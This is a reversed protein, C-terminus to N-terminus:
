KEKAKADTLHFKYSGFRPVQRGADEWGYSYSGIHFLRVTTDAMIKYGCQRARECFAFDDALYWWGDGDPRIHPAYYPVLTRGTDARCEPLALQQRMRDYVERRVLLFGTPAYQIEILGGGKGFQIDTTGALAHIALERKSKKAYIGSVIPLDHSRLQDVADAHFATDADIWLTEECGAALADSAMQCRALDIQKYGHVRFVSYGRRELERLSAECAPEIRDAVPVLVACRSRAPPAFSTQQELSASAPTSGHGSLDSKQGQPQPAREGAGSGAKSEAKARDAINVALKSLKPMKAAPESSERHSTTCHLLHISKDAMIRYGCQRARQCFSWDDPLYAPGGLEDNVLPQFFPVSPNKSAEDCLPLPLECQLREYVERRVHLLGAAAFRLEILPSAGASSREPSSDPPEVALIQRGKAPYVAGVIPLRHARLQDVSRPDFVLNADVWLTEQFGDILAETAMRNRAVDLSGNVPLRRVQYGSRELQQLAEDCPSVIQGCYPTLVVCRRPDKPDSSTRVPSQRDPATESKNEHVDLAVVQDRSSYGCFELLERQGGETNLAALWDFIRLHDPFQRALAAAREYYEDWYRGIGQERDSLDYQPFVRTWVPEHHWPPEPRASWHNTPLPHVKDIWRCFSSIVEQRPRKLCVVRITPSDDIAQELYPLFYSAVDGVIPEKRVRRMQALRQALARDHPVRWPLRPPEEHTIHTGQQRNLLNALSRTGCRGSGIGLIIRRGQM